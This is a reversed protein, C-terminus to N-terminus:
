RWWAPILGWGRAAASAYADADDEDAAGGRYGGPRIQFQWAHRLEHLTFVATQAPETGNGYKVWVERPRDPWYTGGTWHKNVFPTVAREIMRYYAKVDPRFPIMWRLTMGAPLGLDAVGLRLARECLDRYAADVEHAPVEVWEAEDAELRVSLASM